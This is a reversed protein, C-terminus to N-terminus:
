VETEPVKEKCFNKCIRRHKVNSSPAFQCSCYCSLMSPCCSPLLLKWCSVLCCLYRVYKRRFRRTITGYVIPNVCAHFYMLIDSFSFIKEATERNYAFDLILWAIHNPLMFIAFLIVIATLTKIVQVNEQRRLFSNRKTKYSMLDHSITLYAVAIIFLPLLYQAVFLFVTYVQQYRFSPWNETCRGSENPRSVITFPLAVLFALVWVFALLLFAFRRRNVMRLPNLIVKCRHVAMCSMTFISVSVTITVTPSIMKCFFLSEQMSKMDQYIKVPLRVVLFTMDSVALNIIYIDNIKVRKSESLIVLLVMCNGSVGVFLSLFYFVLRGASVVSAYEAFNRDSETTNMLM